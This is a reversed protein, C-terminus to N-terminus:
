RWDLHEDMIEKNFKIKYTSEFYQISVKISDRYKKLAFDFINNGSHVYPVLGQIKNLDDLFNNGADIM